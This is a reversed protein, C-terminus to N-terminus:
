LENSFYEEGYETLEYEITDSFGTFDPIVRILNKAIADLIFNHNLEQEFFPFIKARIQDESFRNEKEYHMICYAAAVIYDIENQLNKEEIISKMQLYVEKFESERKEVVNLTEKEKQKLFEAFNNPFRPIKNSFEQQQVIDEEIENEIINEEFVEQASIENEDTDNIILEAQNDEVYCDEECNTEIIIQKHNNLIFDSMIIEFEEKILKKDFSSLSISCNKKSIKLAFM